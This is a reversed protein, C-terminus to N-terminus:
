GPEVELELRGALKLRLLHGAFRESEERSLLGRFGSGETVEVELVAGRQLLRFFDEGGEPRPVLVPLFGKVPLVGTGGRVRAELAAAEPRTEGPAVGEEPYLPAPPLAVDETSDDLLFGHRSPLRTTFLYLLLVPADGSLREVHLIVRSAGVKRLLLRLRPPSAALYRRVRDELTARIEEFAAQYHAESTREEAALAERARTLKEEAERLFDRLPEPGTPVLAPTVPTEGQSAARVAGVLFSGQQALREHEERLRSRAAAHALRLELWADYASELTEVGRVRSLADRAVDESRPPQPPERPSETRAPRREQPVRM